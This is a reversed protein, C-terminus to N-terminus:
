IIKMISWAFSIVPRATMFRYSRIYWSCSKAGPRRRREPPSPRRCIMRSISIGVATSISSRKRRISRITTSSLRCRMSASRGSASAPEKNTEAKEAIYDNCADLYEFKDKRHELTLSLDVVGAMFSRRNIVRCYFWFGALTLLVVALFIALIRIVIKKIVAKKMSFDSKEKPTQKNELVNKSNNM